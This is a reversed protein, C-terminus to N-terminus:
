TRAHQRVVKAGARRLRRARAPADHVRRDVRDVSSAHQRRDASPQDHEDLGATHEDPAELVVSVGVVGARLVGVVLAGSVVQVVVILLEGVYVVLM